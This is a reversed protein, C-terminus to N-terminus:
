GDGCMEEDEVKRPLNFEVYISVADALYYLFYALEDCLFCACRWAHQLQEIASVHMIDVLKNGQTHHGERCHDVHFHGVDVDEIFDIHDLTSLM